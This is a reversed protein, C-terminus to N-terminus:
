DCHASVVTALISWTLKGCGNISTESAKILRPIAIKTDDAPVFTTEVSALRRCCYLFERSAVLTSGEHEGAEFVLGSYGGGKAIRHWALDIVAWGVTIITDIKDFIARYM